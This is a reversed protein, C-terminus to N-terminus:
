EDEFDQEQLKKLADSGEASHKDPILDLFNEVVIGSAPLKGSVPDIKGSLQVTYTLDRQLTITLCLYKYSQFPARGVFPISAAVLIFEVQAIKFFSFLVDCEKKTLPSTRSLIYRMLRHPKGGHSSSIRIFKYGKYLAIEFPEHELSFVDFEVMLCVLVVNKVVHWLWLLYGLFNILYDSDFIYGLCYNVINKAAGM